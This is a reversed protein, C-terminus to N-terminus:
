QSATLLSYWPISFAPPRPKPHYAAHRAEGKHTALSPATRQQVARHGATEISVQQKGRRRPLFIHSACRALHFALLLTLSSSMATRERQGLRKTVARCYSRCIERSRECIYLLCVIVFLIVVVVAVVRHAVLIKIRFLDNVTKTLVPSERVGDREARNHPKEVNKPIIFEHSLHM